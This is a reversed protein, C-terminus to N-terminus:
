KAGKDPETNPGDFDGNPMIWFKEVTGDLRKTGVCYRYIFHETIKGSKIKMRKRAFFIPQENEKVLFNNPISLRRDPILFSFPTKLINLKNINYALGNKLLVIPCTEM